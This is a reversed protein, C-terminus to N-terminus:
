SFRFRRRVNRCSPDASEIQYALDSILDVLEQMYWSSLHPYFNEGILGEYAERMRSLQEEVQSSDVPLFCGCINSVIYNMADGRRGKGCRFLEHDLDYVETDTSYDVDRRPLNIGEWKAEVWSQALLLLWEALQEVSTQRKGWNGNYEQILIWLGRTTQEEEEQPQFGAEQLLKMLASARKKVFRDYRKYYSWEKERVCRRFLLDKEERGRVLHIRLCDTEEGFTSHLPFLLEEKEMKEIKWGNNLHDKVIHDNRIEENM